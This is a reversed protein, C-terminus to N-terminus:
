TEILKKMADPHLRFLHWAEKATIDVAGRAKYFDQAPNWDLVVFDM